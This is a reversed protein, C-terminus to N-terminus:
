DQWQEWCTPCEANEVDGDTLIAGCSCQYLDLEADQGDTYEIHLNWHGWARALSYTEGDGSYLENCEDALAHLRENTEASARRIYEYEAM